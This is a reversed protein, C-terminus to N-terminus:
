LWPLIFKSSTLPNFTCVCFADELSSKGGASCLPGPGCMECLGRSGSLADLGRLMPDCGEQM